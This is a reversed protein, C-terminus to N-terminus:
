YFGGNGGVWNGGSYVGIGHNRRYLEKMAEGQQTNARDNPAQHLSAMNDMYMNIKDPQMLQTHFGGMDYDNRLKLDLYQEVVPSLMRVWTNNIPSDVTDKFVEENQWGTRSNWQAAENTIGIGNSAYKLLCAAAKKYFEKTAM